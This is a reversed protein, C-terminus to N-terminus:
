QQRYTVPAMTTGKIKLPEEMYTALRAKTDEFRLLQIDLQLHKYTQKAIISVVM